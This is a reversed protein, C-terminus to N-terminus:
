KRSKIVPRSLFDMKLGMYACFASLITYIGLLGCVFISWSGIVNFADAAGPFVGMYIFGYLVCTIGGTLFVGVFSVPYTLVIPVMLLMIVGIVFFVWGEVAWSYPIGLAEAVAGAINLAGAGGGFFAAFICYINGTFSEGRVMHCIGGYAYLAFIGLQFAGLALTSGEGLWGMGNAWLLFCLSTFCVSSTVGGEGYNFFSIQTRNDKDM